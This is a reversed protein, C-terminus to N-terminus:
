KYSKKKFGSKKENNIQKIDKSKIYKRKTFNVVEM